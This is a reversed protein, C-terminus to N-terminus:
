SFGSLCPPRAVWQKGEPVLFGSSPNAANMENIDYDDTLMVRFRTSQLNRCSIDGFIISEDKTFNRTSREGEPSHAEYPHKKDEKPERLRFYLTSPVIRISRQFAKRLKIDSTINDAAANPVPIMVAQYVKYEPFPAGFTRKSWERACHWPLTLPSSPYLRTRLSKLFSSRVREVM